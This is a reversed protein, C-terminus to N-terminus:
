INFCFFILYAGLLEPYNNQAFNATEKILRYAMKTMKFLSFGNLDIVNTCREIQRGALRSAVPLLVWMTMEHLHIYYRVIEEISLVKFVKEPEMIGIREIYVPRGQKCLHYYGHDHLKAM